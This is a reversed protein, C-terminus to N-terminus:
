SKTRLEHLFYLGAWRDLENGRDAASAAAARNNHRRKSERPSLGRQMSLEALVEPQNVIM